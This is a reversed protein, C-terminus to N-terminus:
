MTRFDRPRLPPPPAATPQGRAGTQVGRQARFGSGYGVRRAMAGITADPERLLDAALNPRWGPNLAGKFSRSAAAPNSLTSAVRSCNSDLQTRHFMTRVFVETSTKPHRM